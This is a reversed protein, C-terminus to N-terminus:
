LLLCPFFDKDSIPRVGSSRAGRGIVEGRGSGNSLHSISYLLFSIFFGLSGKFFLPKLAKRTPVASPVRVGL